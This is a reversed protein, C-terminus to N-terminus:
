GCIYFLDPAKNGATRPAAEDGSPGAVATSVTASIATANITTCRYATSDRHADTSSGDTGSSRSCIVRRAASIIRVRRAVLPKTATISPETLAAGTVAAM